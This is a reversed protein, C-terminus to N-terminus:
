MREVVEIGLLNLGLKITRATLDCRSLRSKRMLRKPALNEEVSQGFCHQKGKWLAVL